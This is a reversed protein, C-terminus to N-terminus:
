GTLVSRASFAILAVRKPSGCREPTTISVSSFIKCFMKLCFGPIRHCRISSLIATINIHLTKKDGEQVGVNVFITDKTNGAPFTDPLSHLVWLVGFTNM